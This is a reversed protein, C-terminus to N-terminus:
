VHINEDFRSDYIINYSLKNFATPLPISSTDSSLHLDFLFSFVIALDAPKVHFKLFVDLLLKCEQLKSQHLLYYPKM